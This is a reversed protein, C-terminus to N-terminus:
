AAVPGLGRFASQEYLLPQGDGFRVTAIRGILIIHSSAEVREIVDCSLSVLADALYPLGREDEEWNGLAFKEAGTVGGAGAFRMALAGEPETLLNVNFRGTESAMACTGTARNLCVLISPPEATVSSVATATIGLRDEGDAATVITVVGPFRAMAARFEDSSICMSM